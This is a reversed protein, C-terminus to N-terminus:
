GKHADIIAQAGARVEEVTFTGERDAEELAEDLSATFQERQQEWEQLMRLAARVVESVNNYRGEAVCERAFRELEPTLSVNTAM